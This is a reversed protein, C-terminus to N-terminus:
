IPIKVQYTKRASNTLVSSRLWPNYVKLVRYTTGHQHAFDAWSPIAGSVEVIKYNFPPYLEDQDLYFGYNNPNSMIEKLAIIRPIYRSTEENMEMNYYETEKQSNQLKRLRSKGMNYSAAAESWTGFQDKANKLYRCAAHTAKEVHYREDVESNVIMRYEKGTSALFQWIGKAGAPSSANRLGSEAVALYKIDDPVGEQALIPEIIPFYRNALKLYQLTASHRYSNVMMERDIRERIDFGNPVAEGAFTLNGSLRIGKVVQPL